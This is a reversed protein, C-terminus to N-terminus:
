KFSYTICHTGSYMHYALKKEKYMRRKLGPREHKIPSAQIYQACHSALDIKEYEM